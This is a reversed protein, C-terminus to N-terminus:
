RKTVERARANAFNVAAYVADAFQGNGLIRQAEAVTTADEPTLHLHRGPHKAPYTSIGVLPKRDRNIAFCSGTDLVGVKPNAKWQGVSIEVLDNGHVASAVYRFHVEGEYRPNCNGDCWGYRECDGPLDLNAFEWMLDGVM